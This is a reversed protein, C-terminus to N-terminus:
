CNSNTFLTLPPYSLQFCLGFYTYIITATCLITACVKYRYVLHYFISQLPVCSSLVYRTATCLITACVKYHYVTQERLFRNEGANRDLLGWDMKIDWTYTYCSSVIAALLWFWLFLSEPIVDSRGHEARLFCCIYLFSLSYICHEKQM